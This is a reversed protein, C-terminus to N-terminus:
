PSSRTIKQLFATDIHNMRKRITAVTDTPKMDLMVGLTLGVCEAIARAEDESIIEAEVSAKMSNSFTSM